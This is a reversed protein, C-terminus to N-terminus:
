IQALKIQMKQYVQEATPLVSLDCCAQEINDLETELSTVDLPIISAHQVKCSLSDTVVLIVNGTSEGDNNLELVTNIQTHSM